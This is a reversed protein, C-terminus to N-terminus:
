PAPASVTVKIPSEVGRAFDDVYKRWAEPTTIKGAKDWAFGAWYDISHDVGARVLLVHDQKDEAPKIFQKPDVIAAVGQMGRKKEMPEWIALAGPQEEFEEQEGKVKKLGVAAVLPETNSEPQFTVQYHDMQSGADLTVRMVESVKTGNVEFPEYFLEFMVRIPGNALERSDVFNKSVWLRNDAWLGNGGDGRSAGATYDDGGNDTMTHYFADGMMYWENVILRPTLKSWIDIASSTLPEGQWTELARGYTRHAILDNEWAFDDFRERVFRGYAQYDDPKFEQRRGATVTFTKTENPAFNSQFIVIDPDHYADYDVDVAQCLLDKGAADKVHIKALDQEGLPALQQRTLEITQRTRAIPLPNLATVTLRDAANAALAPLLVALIATQIKRLNTM